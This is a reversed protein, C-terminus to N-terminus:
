NRTLRGNAMRASCPPANPPRHTGHAWEQMKREMEDVSEAAKALADQKGNFTLVAKEVTAIRSKLKNKKEKQKSTKAKKKAKKKGKTQRRM